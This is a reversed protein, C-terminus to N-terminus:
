INYQRYIGRLARLHLPPLLLVQSIQAVKDIRGPQLVYVVCWKEGPSTIEHRRCVIISQPETFAIGNSIAIKFFSLIQTCVNAVHQKLAM